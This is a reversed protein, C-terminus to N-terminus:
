KTVRPMVKGNPEVITLAAKVGPAKQADSLDVSVVRAHPHPSRLIRGYLLGPRNVDYSYKAHGSLKLAGDLRTHPKSISQTATPDPWPYKAHQTPAAPAKVEPVQRDAM